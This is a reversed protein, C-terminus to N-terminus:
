GNSTEEGLVNLLGLTMDRTTGGAKRLKRKVTVLQSRSAFKLELVFPRDAVTSEDAVDGADALLPAEPQATLDAVESETFGTMVALEDMGLGAALMETMTGAALTLDVNGRLRNMALRYARIQVPSMRRVVAQVVTQGLERLAEIRHAGDVVEFEADAGKDMPSALIPQLFGGEQIFLKLSAFQEASMKNPNEAASVVHLVGLSLTRTSTVLTAELEKQNM